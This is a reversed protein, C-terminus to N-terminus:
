HFSAKYYLNKDCNYFQNSNQSLRDIYDKLKKLVHGFITELVNSEIARIKDDFEELHKKRNKVDNEDFIKTIENFATKINPDINEPLIEIIQNIMENSKLGNKEEFIEVSELIKLLGIYICYCVNAQKYTEKALKFLNVAQKLLELDPQVSDLAENVLKRGELYCVTSSVIKAVEEDENINEV